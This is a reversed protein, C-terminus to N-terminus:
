IAALAAHQAGSLASGHHLRHLVIGHHLVHISAALLLRPAQVVPCFRWVTMSQALSIGQPSWKCASPFIFHMCITSQGHAHHEARTRYGLLASLATGGGVQFAFKYSARLM